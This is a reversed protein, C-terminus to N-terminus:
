TSTEEDDAVAARLLALAGALGDVGGAGLARALVPDLTQDLTRSAATHMRLGADTAVVWAARGDSPDSERCALGARELRDALKSAGGRSVGLAAAIEGVRARGGRGVVVRLPELGALPLDHAAQLRRDVMNWLGVEVRVPDDFLKSPTAACVRPGVCITEM